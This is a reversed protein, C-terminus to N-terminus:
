DMTGDAVRPWARGIRWCFCRKASSDGDGNPIGPSTHKQTDGILPHDRALAPTTYVRRRAPQACSSQLVTFRASGHSYSTQKANSGAYRLGKWDPKMEPALSKFAAVLQASLSMECSKASTIVTQLFSTIDKGQTVNSLRLRDAKLYAM